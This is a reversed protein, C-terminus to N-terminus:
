FLVRLGVGFLLVGNSAEKLSFGYGGEMFISAGSGVVSQVGVKGIVSGVDGEPRNTLQTSYLADVYASSTSQPSLYFSLGTNLGVSPTAEGSNIEGNFNNGVKLVVRETAFYGIDWQGFYIGQFERSTEFGTVQGRSNTVPTSVESVTGFMNFGFSVQTAGQRGITRAAAPAQAHAVSASAVGFLVSFVGAKVVRSVIRM